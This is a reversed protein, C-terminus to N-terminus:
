VKGEQGLFELACESSGTEQSGIEKTDVHMLETMVMYKITKRTPILSEGYLSFSRFRIRKKKKFM